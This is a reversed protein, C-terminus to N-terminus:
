SFCGVPDQTRVIIGVGNHIGAVVNAAKQTQTLACWLQKTNFNNVLKIQYFVDPNQRTLLVWTRGCDSLRKGYQVILMNRLLIENLGLLTTTRWAGSRIRRTLWSSPATKLM